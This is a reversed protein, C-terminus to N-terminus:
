DPKPAADLQAKAKAVADALQAKSAGNTFHMKILLPCAENILHAKTMDPALHIGLSLQSYNRAQEKDHAKDAFEPLQAIAKLLEDKGGGELTIYKDFLKVLREITKTQTPEWRCAALQDPLNYGIVDFYSPDDNPNKDPLAAVMASLAAHRGPEAAARIALCPLSVLVALLIREM